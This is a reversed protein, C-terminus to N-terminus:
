SVGGEGKEPSGGKGKSLLGGGSFIDLGCVTYSSRARTKHLDGTKLLYCVLMKCHRGSEVEPLTYWM